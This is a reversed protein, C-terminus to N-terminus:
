YLTFPLCLFSITEPRLGDLERHLFIHKDTWCAMIEYFMKKKKMNVGNKDTNILTWTPLLSSNQKKRWIRTFYVKLATEAFELMWTHKHMTRDYWIMYIINTNIGM